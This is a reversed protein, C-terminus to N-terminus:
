KFKVNFWSRCTETCECWWCPACWERKRFNCNNFYGILIRRQTNIHSCINTPVQHTYTASNMFYLYATHIHFNDM